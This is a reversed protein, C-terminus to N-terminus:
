RTPCAISTLGAGPAPIARGTLELEVRVKVAEMRGLSSAGGGSAQVVSHPTTSLHSPVAAAAPSQDATGPVLQADLITMTGEPAAAVLRGLSVEDARAPAKARMVAEYVPALARFREADAVYRFRRPTWGLADQARFAYDTSILLPSVSRYPPTAIAAYDVAPQAGTHPVAHLVWGSPLAELVVDLTGTVRSRASEGARVSLEVAAGRCHRVRVEGAAREARGGATGYLLMGGALLAVRWRSM